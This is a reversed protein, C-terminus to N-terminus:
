LRSPCPPEPVLLRQLTACMEEVDNPKYIMARAGAALPLETSIPFCLTFV